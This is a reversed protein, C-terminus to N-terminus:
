LKVKKNQMHYSLDSNETLTNTLGVLLYSSIQLLEVPVPLFMKAYMCQDIQASSVYLCVYMCVYIYSPLLCSIYM